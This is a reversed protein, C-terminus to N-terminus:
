TPTLQGFPASASHVPVSTSREPAVFIPVPFSRTLAPLVARTLTFSDAAPRLALAAPVRLTTALAVARSRVLAAAVVVRVTVTRGAFRRQRAGGGAPAGEARQVPRGRGLNGVILAVITVLYIQGFLMEFISITDGVQTAPVLNGYGVTCLTTFSFFLFDSGSDGGSLIDHGSIRDVAGFVFAFMLGVLLYVCLVSFVTDLTIRRESRLKRAAGRVIAIPAVGALLAGITRSAGVELQGAVLAVLAGIVIVVVLASALEIRRRSAKSAYLAAVLTAGELLVLALQAWGHDPAIGTLGITAIILVLVVSYPHPRM